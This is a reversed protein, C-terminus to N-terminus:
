YEPRLGFEASEVWEDPRDFYEALSSVLLYHEEEQAALVQFLEKLKVDATASAHEKYFRQTAQETEMARQLCDCMSADTSIATQGREVAGEVLGRVEKLLSSAQLEKYDGRKMGEPVAAHKREEDALLRLIKEACPESM